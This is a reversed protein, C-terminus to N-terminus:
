PEVWYKLESEFLFKSMDTMRQPYLIGDLHDTEHQVVRAHFGTAERVIEEGEFGLGSYRIHAPRVVSGRLGPVSLCGEWSEATETGIDQIQPNILVTLPANARPDPPAGAPNRDGPASFIIIRLPIHIQQAALGAGAADRLTEIMDTVIQRIQPATPDTVPKAPSMLVPHGMRAIKAITM